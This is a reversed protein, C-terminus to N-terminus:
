THKLEIYNTGQFCVIDYAETSAKDTFPKFGMQEIALEMAAKFDM